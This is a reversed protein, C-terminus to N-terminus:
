SFFFVFMQAKSLSSILKEASISRHVFDTRLIIEECRVKSVRWERKVSRNCKLNINSHKKMPVNDGATLSM